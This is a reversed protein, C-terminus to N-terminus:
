KPDIKKKEVVQSYGWTIKKRNLLVAGDGISSLIAKYLLYVIPGLPKDERTM